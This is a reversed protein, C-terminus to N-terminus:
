RDRRRVGRGVGTRGRRPSPDSSLWSPGQTRPPYAAGLMDVEQNLVEIVDRIAEVRVTAGAALQVEDLYKGGGLGWLDDVPPHLGAKALVAKIQAKLGTRIAVLKWRYRV